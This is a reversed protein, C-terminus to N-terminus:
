SKLLGKLFELSKLKMDLHETIWRECFLSLSYLVSLYEDSEFQQLEAFRAGLLTEVWEALKGDVGLLEQADPRVGLAACLKLVCALSIMYPTAGRGKGIYEFAAVLMAYLLPEENHHATAKEVLEAPVSAAASHEMDSRCAAHAELIRADIAIDLSRGKSLQAEVLMFLELRAALFSGPKRAGKAVARRQMGEEDLLTVILDTEGLKTKKLVLAKAKYTPM